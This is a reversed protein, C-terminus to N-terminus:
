AARKAPFTLPVGPAVGTKGATRAHHTDGKQARGNPPVCGTGLTCYLTLCLWRVTGCGSEPEAKEPKRRPKKKSQGKGCTGEM